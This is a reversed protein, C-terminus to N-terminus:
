AGAPRTTRTAAAAVLGRTVDQVPRRAQRAAALTALASPTAGPPMRQLVSVPSHEALRLRGLEDLAARSRPLSSPDLPGTV